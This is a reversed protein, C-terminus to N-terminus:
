GPVLRSASRNQGVLTVQRSPAASHPSPTPRCSQTTSDHLCSQEHAQSSTLILVMKTDIRSSGRHTAAALIPM